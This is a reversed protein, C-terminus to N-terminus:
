MHYKCAKGQGEMGWGGIEMFQYLTEQGNRRGNICRWDHCYNKIGHPNGNLFLLRFAM